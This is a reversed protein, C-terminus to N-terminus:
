NMLKNDSPKAVPRFTYTQPTSAALLTSSRSIAAQARKASQLCHAMSETLQRVGESLRKAAALGSNRSKDIQIQRELTECVLAELRQATAGSFENRIRELQVLMRQGAESNDSNNEIWARIRYEIDPSPEQTSSIKM